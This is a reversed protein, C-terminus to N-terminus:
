LLPSFLRCISNILRRLFSFNKFDEMTFESSNALDTEFQDQILKASEIDYIFTNVEYDLRFSRVDFNCSGMGVIMKDAIIVKSHLFGAKYLFIKVGAELLRKFYTFAAYFPTKKDPKGTIMLRVNVGSLAATELAQQIPEGPIFYPSQICVERNANTIIHFYSMEISGWDSDPGSVCLQVPVGSRDKWNEPASIKGTLLENGSNYWDTLFVTQMLSVSSGTMRIQTDRWDTFRSGGHIYEEGLNMGGTYAIEGDIVVIKRHNRYNINLKALPITPDLFFKYAIGAKKLARRYKRSITFLSGLGDFILRVEVGQKVKISLLELFETGLPDSRWIFFEMHISERADKIDEKLKSFFEEGQFYFNLYNNATIISGASRALLTITKYVDSLVENRSYSQRLFREQANIVPSLETRFLEEPLQKILRKKRWNVGFALFGM